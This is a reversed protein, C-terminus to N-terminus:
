CVNYHETKKMTFVHGVGLVGVIEQEERRM